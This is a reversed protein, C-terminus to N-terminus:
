RGVTPACDCDLGVCYYRNERAGIPDAHKSRAVATVIPLLNVITQKGKIFDSQRDVGFPWM